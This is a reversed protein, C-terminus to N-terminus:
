HIRIQRAVITNGAPTGVVEASAGAVLAACSGGVYATSANTIVVQGSVPFALAPCVGTVPGSVGGITTESPTPTPTPTPPPTPTPTPTPTTTGASQVTVRTAYAYDARQLGDADVTLGDRLSSATKPSTGDFVQTSGNGRVLQRGLEFQFAEGDGTMGSIVGRLQASTGVDDLMEVLSGRLWAGDSEATVRSRAGVKLDAFALPMSGSRIIADSGLVIRKGGVVITDPALIGEIAGEITQTSVPLGSM